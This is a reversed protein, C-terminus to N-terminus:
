RLGTTVQFTLFLQEPTGLSALESKEKAIIKGILMM